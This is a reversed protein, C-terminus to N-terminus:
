RTVSTTTSSSSEGTVPDVHREHQRSVTTGDASQAESSSKVSTGDANQQYSRSKESTNGFADVTKKSESASYSGSTSPVTTTTTTSQTSVDQALAIGPVMILAAAGALWYRSM